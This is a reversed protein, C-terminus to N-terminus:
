EDSRNNDFTNYVYWKSVSEDSIEARNGLLPRMSRLFRRSFELANGLRAILVRKYLLVIVWVSAETTMRSTAFRTSSAAKRAM